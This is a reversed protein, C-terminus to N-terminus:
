LTYDTSYGAWAARFDNGASTMRAKLNQTRLSAHLVTSGVWWLIAWLLTTVASTLYCLVASSAALAACATKRRFGCIYIQRDPIRGPGAPRAMSRLKVALSPSAKRILRMMRDNAAMAFNDNACLIAAVGLSLTVLAYPNRYFSYVFGVCLGLAYNSRYYFLNCKLRSRWRKGTRPVSFNRWMELVPRPRAKWDVQRLAELLDETTVNNWDMADDDSETKGERKRSPERKLFIKASGSRLLM